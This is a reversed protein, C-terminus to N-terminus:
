EELEEELPGISGSRFELDHLGVADLEVVPMQTENLVKKANELLSSLNEKISPPQKAKKTRTKRTKLPQPDPPYESPDLPSELPQDQVQNQVSDQIPNQVPVQSPTDRGQLIDYLDQITTQSSKLLEIQKNIVKKQERLDYELADIKKVILKITDVPLDSSVILTKAINLATLLRDPRNFLDYVYFLIVKHEEVQIIDMEIGNINTARHAAFFAFNINYGNNVADIVDHKFNDLHVGSVTDVNKCEILGIMPRSNGLANTNLEFYFDTLGKERTVNEIICNPLDKMYNYVWNEGIIGKAYNTTLKSTLEQIQDKIEQFHVNPDIDRQAFSLGQSQGQTQGRIGPITGPGLNSSLKEELKAKAEYLSNLEYSKEDKISLHLLYNTLIVKRKLDQDLSQFWGLAKEM